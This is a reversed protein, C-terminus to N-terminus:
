NNGCHETSIYVIIIQSLNSNSCWIIIWYNLNRPFQTENANRNSDYKQCPSFKNKKDSCETMSIHHFRWSLKRIRIIKCRISSNIIWEINQSDLKEIMHMKIKVNVNALFLSQFLIYKQFKWSLLDNLLRLGVQAFSVHFRFLYCIFINNNM